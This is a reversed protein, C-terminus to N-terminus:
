NVWPGKGHRHHKRAYVQFKRKARRLQWAKYAQRLQAPGLSSEIGRLATSKLYLYGFLMGGLHAIHSVNGDSGLTGLFAVAGVIMVFYKAKIPFLFNFFITRNPYLLGFALLLGYVAGSSGITRTRMSGVLANLVVSCLGACVGCFFYYSLFRKTGWERELDSGFMWLSLMNFLIHFVGAHLFMYTVLQWVAGHKLVLEPILTFTLFVDGIGVQDALFYLLFIGINIILLWKVGPPFHMHSGQYAYRRDTLM